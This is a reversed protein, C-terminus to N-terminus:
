RAIPFIKVEQVSRGQVATNSGPSGAPLTCASPKAIQAKGARGCGACSGCGSAPQLLQAHLASRWRVPLPMPLPLQLLGRLILRRLAQPALAWLAYAGSLLVVGAVLLSQIM